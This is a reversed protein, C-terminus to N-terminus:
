DSYNAPPRFVFVLVIKSTVPHGNLTAAMFRWGELSAKADATANPVDQIVKVDKIKGAASLTAELVV